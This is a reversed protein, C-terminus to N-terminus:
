VHKLNNIDAQEKRFSPPPSFLDATQRLAATVLVKALLFDGDHYTEPDILGSHLMRDATEVVSKRHNDLLEEIRLELRRTM